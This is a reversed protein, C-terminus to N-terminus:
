YTNATEDIGIKTSSPYKMKLAYTQKYMNRGAPALSRIVEPGQHLNETRNCVAGVM